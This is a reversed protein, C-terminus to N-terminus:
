KKKAKKARRDRAAKAAEQKAVSAPKTPISLIRYSQTTFILPHGELAFTVRPDDKMLHTTVHLPPTGGPVLVLAQKFAAIVRQYGDLKPVDSPYTHLTDLFSFWRNSELFGCPVIGLLAFSDELTHNSSFIGFEEQLRTMEEIGGPGFRRNLMALVDLTTDDGIAFGM